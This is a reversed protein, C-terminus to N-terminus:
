SGRGQTADEVSLACFACRHRAALLALCAECVGPFDSSRKESVLADYDEAGCLAVSGPALICIVRAPEIDGEARVAGGRVPVIETWRGRSSASRGLSTRTCISARAHRAATRVRTTEVGETRVGGHAGGATM